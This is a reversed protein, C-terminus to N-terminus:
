KSSPPMASFEFLNTKGNSSVTGTRGIPDNSLLDQLISPESKTYAVFRDTNDLRGVILGKEAEGNRGFLVTYTEVQGTGSPATCLTPHDLADLQQQLVSPETRVFETNPRQTSYIGVSHKTVYWGNATVLGMTGPANRLREIMAAIGHMSYNNGAGGFYPLGGTQTLARPDNETVGLVDKTIQVIAPFCSYLDFYDIQQTTVEAMQMAQSIGATLAPSSHFNIRESVHWVDHMDACGHLYVWRSADIGLQQAKAESTLLMSASQNVQIVSNLYKTYPFGVYRNSVSVTSIEKASRQTPFWAYPNNAAIKTFPSFLKGLSTQHAEMSRGYHHRLANEFLPYAVIPAMLGHAKETENTGKRETGFLVPEGETDEHWDVPQGSKTAKILTDLAEAGTLLVFSADGKSIASAYHNVLLQPTNGGVSTLKQEARTIGLRKALAAPPNQVMADGVSSVVALADIEHLVDVGLGADLIAVRATAAMMDLPSMAQKLNTPRDLLQGVGVLIPRNSNTM